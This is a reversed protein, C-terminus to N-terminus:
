RKKSVSLQWVLDHLVCVTWLESATGIRLLFVQEVSQQKLSKLFCVSSMEYDFRRKNPLESSKKCVNQALRLAEKSFFPVM